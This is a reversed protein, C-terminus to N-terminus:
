QYYYIGVCVVLHRLICTILFYIIITYLEKKINM